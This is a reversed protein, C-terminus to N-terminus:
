QYLQEHVPPIKGKVLQRAPTEEAPTAPDTGLLSTEDRRRCDVGEFPAQVTEILIHHLILINYVNM